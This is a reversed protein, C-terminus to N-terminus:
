GNTKQIREWTKSVLELNPYILLIFLLDQILDQDCENLIFETTDKELFNETEEILKLDVPITQDYNEYKIWAQRLKFLKAIWTIKEQYPPDLKLYSVALEWTSNKYNKLRNLLIYEIIGNKFVSANIIKTYEEIHSSDDQIIANIWNLYAKYVEWNTYEM